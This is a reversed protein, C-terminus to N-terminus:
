EKERHLKVFCGRHWLQEILHEHPPSGCNCVEFTYVLKPLAVGSCDEGCVPCFDRTPHGRNWSKILDIGTLQSVM